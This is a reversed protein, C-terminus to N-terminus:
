NAGLGLAGRLTAREHAHLTGHEQHEQARPLGPDLPPRAGPESQRPSVRLGHRYIMLLLIHDGIGHRGKKAADLLRAMEADTLFDKGRVHADVAERPKAAGGSKGNRGKAVM